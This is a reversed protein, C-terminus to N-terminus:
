KSAEWAKLAAHIHNEVEYRNGFNPAHVRMWNGAEKLAEALKEACARLEPASAILRADIRQQKTIGISGGSITCVDYTRFGPDNKGKMWKESYPPGICLGSHDKHEYVRWPGPTHGTENSPSAPSEKPQNAQTCDNNGVHVPSWKLLYHKTRWANPEEVEFVKRPDLTGAEVGETYEQESIEQWRRHSTENRQYVGDTTSSRVSDDTFGAQSKVAQRLELPTFPKM